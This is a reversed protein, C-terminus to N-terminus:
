PARASVWASQPRQRHRLLAARGARLRAAEDYIALAATWENIAAQLESAGRTSWVRPRPAGAGSGASQRGGSRHCASLHRGASDTDGSDAQAAALSRLVQGSCGRRRAAQLHPIADSSHGVRACRWASRAKRRGHAAGRRGATQRGDLAIQAYSLAEDSKRLSLCARSMRAVAMCTNRSRGNRARVPAARSQLLRPSGPLARRRARPRGAAAGLAARLRPLRDARRHAARSGAPAPRRSGAREPDAGAGAARHLLQEARRRRVRSSPCRTACCIRPTAPTPTTCTPIAWSVSRAGKPVRSRLRARWNSRRARLRCAGGVWDGQAQAVMGIMTYIYSRQTDDTASALIRQNCRREAEAYRGQRMLIESKHLEAASRPPAIPRRLPRTELASIWCNSRRSTTKPSNRRGRRELADRLAQEQPRLAPRVFSALTEKLDM